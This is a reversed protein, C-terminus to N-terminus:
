LQKQISPNPKPLLPLERRLATYVCILTSSSQDSERYVSHALPQGRIAVPCWVEQKTPKSVVEQQPYHYALLVAGFIVALYASVAVTLQFTFKLFEKLNM